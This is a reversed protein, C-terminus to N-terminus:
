SIWQFVSRCFIPLLMRKFIHLTQTRSTYKQVHKDSNRKTSLNFRARNPLLSFFFPSEKSKVRNQSKSQIPPLLSLSLSYYLSLLLFLVLLYPTSCHTQTSIHTSKNQKLSIAVNKNSLILRNECEVLM